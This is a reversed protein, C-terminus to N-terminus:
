RIPIHPKAGGQVQQVQWELLFKAFPPLGSLAAVAGWESREQVPLTAWAQACERGRQRQEGQRQSAATRQEPKRRGTSIGGSMQFTVIKGLTGSAAISCLPGQIKAM